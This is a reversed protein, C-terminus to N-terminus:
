HGVPSMIAEAKVLEIECDATCEIEMQFTNAIGFGGFEIVPMRDGSLGLSYPVWNGFARNDLNARVRIDAAATNTGIGRKLRLRFNDMSSEGAQDWHGTRVLWRQTGGDHTHVTSDLVYIVGDGGVFDLGWHKHHSWGPWRTPLAKKRDWGYLQSWRQKKYDYLFTLGRTGYVSTANPIVLLAYKQGGIILPESGVWADTWDDVGEITRGIDDGIPQGTQGALRVVEANKNVLIVANDAFGMAYPSILGEGVAWRRYFPVDGSAYREWQEVSDPGALIMERFPTIVMGTINDPKGDAAFTDLPDWERSDGATSHEFRGSDKEVAIVFSDMTGIHTTEPADKSLIETKKGAFRIPKGGAAMLLESITKDFTVRKGGSIPVGTVDELNANRDIRYLRGKSTVAMLDGRWDELYVRGNDPLAKWTQLGPFRSIGGADNTYANELKAIARNLLTEDSNLFLKGDLPIPVWRSDAM